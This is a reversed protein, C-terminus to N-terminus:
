RPVPILGGNPRPLGMFMGSSVSAGSHSRGGYLSPAYGGYGPVFGGYGPYGYGSVGPYLGYTGAGFSATGPAAYASYGSSYYGPGSLGYGAGGVGFGPAYGYPTGYYGGSYYSFGPVNISVGTGLYPNGFSFAVQANATSAQGLLLGATIVLGFIHRM